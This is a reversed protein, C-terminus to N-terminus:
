GDRGGHLRDVPLDRLLDSPQPDETGDPAPRVHRDIVIRVRVVDEPCAAPLVDKGGTVMAVGLDRQRLDRIELGLDDEEGILRVGEMRSVERIELGDKSFASLPARRRTELQTDVDVRSLSPAWRAQWVAFRKGPDLALAPRPPPAGGGFLPNSIWRGNPPRRPPFRSPM